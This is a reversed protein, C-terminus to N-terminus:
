KVVLVPNKSHTLVYNSTSGMLIRTIPNQGRAGIVIMDYKGKKAFNVM